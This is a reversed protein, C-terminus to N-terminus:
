VDGEDIRELPDVATRTIAVAQAGKKKIDQLKDYVDAANDNDQHYNEHTILEDRRLPIAGLYFFRPVHEEPGNDASQYKESRLRYSHADLRGHGREGAALIFRLPPM